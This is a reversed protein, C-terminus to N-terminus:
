LVNVAMLHMVNYCVILLLTIGACEVFLFTENCLHQSYSCSHRM